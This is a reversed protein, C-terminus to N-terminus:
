SLSYVDCATTLIALVYNELTSINPRRFFVLLIILLQLM